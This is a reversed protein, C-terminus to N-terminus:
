KAGAAVGVLWERIAALQLTGRFLHKLLTYGAHALRIAINLVFWLGSTHRRFFILSSQVQLRQKLPARM